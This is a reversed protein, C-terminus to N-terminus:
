LRHYKLLLNFISEVPLVERRSKMLSVVAAVTVAAVEVV